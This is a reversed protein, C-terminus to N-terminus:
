FREVEQGEPVKYCGSIVDLTLMPPDDKAMAIVKVSVKKADNDATLSINKNKSTDPGYHVVKWGNKPLEVKLRKMAVELDGETAPTFSWPHLIRFYTGADKGGCDTVTPRSDSAKGAIGILDYISSSVKEMSDSADRSTSTGASPIAQTDDDTMSCGTLTILALPVTLMLASLETKV